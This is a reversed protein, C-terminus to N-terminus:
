VDSDVTTTAETVSLAGRFGRKEGYRATIATRTHRLSRRGISSAPTASFLTELIPVTRAQPAVCEWRVVEGRHPPSHPHAPSHMSM